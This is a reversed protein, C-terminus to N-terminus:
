AAPKLARVHLFNPIRRWRASNPSSFAHEPEAIEHLREVLLGAEALSESYAQLPRHVGAFTMTLGDRTFTGAVPGEDLYSGDIAFPSTAERAVFSGASALPHVIALCLRGGPVLVRATERVAGGLDDIDHLSMFAVVIGFSSDPFPLAAADALHLEMDPASERAAAILTPSTDVGVVDHGLAALDRTVRGEGCGLDLTRGAPEPVLELFVDRHFQWYSDHGPKRAWAIWETAHREWESRLDNV